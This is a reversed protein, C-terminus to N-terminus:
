IYKKDLKDFEADRQALHDLSYQVSGRSPLATDANPLGIQAAGSFLPRVSDLSSAAQFIDASSTAM